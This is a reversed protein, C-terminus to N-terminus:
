PSVKEKEGQLDRTLSQLSSMQGRLESLDRIISEIAPHGELSGTTGSQASPTGTQMGPTPQDHLVLPQGAADQLNGQLPTLLPVAPLVWSCACSLNPGLWLFGPHATAAFCQYIKVKKGEWCGHGRKEHSNLEFHRLM